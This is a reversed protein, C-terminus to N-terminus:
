GIFKRCCACELKTEFVKMLCTTHYTHKCETIAYEEENDIELLCANCEIVKDEENKTEFRLKDIAHAVESPSPGESKKESKPENQLLEDAIDQMPRNDYDGQNFHQRQRHHPNQVPIVNMMNQVVARQQLATAYFMVRNREQEERQLRQALLFDPDNNNNQEERQLRRALLRDEQIQRYTLMEFQIPYKYM